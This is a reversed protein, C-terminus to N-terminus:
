KNDANEFGQAIESLSDELNTKLDELNQKIHNLNKETFSTNEDIRKSTWPSNKVKNVMSECSDITKKIYSLVKSLDDRLTSTNIVATNENKDITYQQLKLIEPAPLKKPDADARTIDFLTSNLENISISIDKSYLNIIVVNKNWCTMTRIYQVGRWYGNLKEFTKNANNLNTYFNDKYSNAVATLNNIVGTKSKVNITSM